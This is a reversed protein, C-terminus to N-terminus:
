SRNDPPNETEPYPHTLVRLKFFFSKFGKELAASFLGLSFLM